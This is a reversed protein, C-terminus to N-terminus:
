TRKSWIFVGSILHLVIICVFQKILGFRNIEGAHFMELYITDIVLFSIIPLSLNFLFCLFFNGELIKSFFFCNQPSIFGTKNFYNRKCSSLRKEVITRLLPFDLFCRFHCISNEHKSKLIMSTTVVQDNFELASHQSDKVINGTINCVIAFHSYHQQVDCKLENKAQCIYKQPLRHVVFLNM